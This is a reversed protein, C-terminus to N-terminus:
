NVTTASIDSPDETVQLKRVRLYSPGSSSSGARARQYLRERFWASDEAGFLDELLALLGETTWIEDDVM